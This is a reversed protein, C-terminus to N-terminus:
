NTSEVRFLGGLCKSVGFECPHKGQHEEVIAALKMSIPTQVNSIHVVLSPVGPFHGWAGLTVLILCLSGQSEELSGGPKNIKFVWTICECLPWGLFTVSTASPMTQWHWWTSSHKSSIYKLKDNSGLHIDNLYIPKFGPVRLCSVVDLDLHPKARPM